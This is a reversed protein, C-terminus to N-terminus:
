KTLSFVVNVQTEVEVPEGHLLFPRYRWTRVAKMASETLLEDPSAVMRLDTPAGERDIVVALTVTGRIRKEKATEPYVPNEGAIKNRSIVGPLVHVRKVSQATPAGPPLAARLAVASSYTPLVVALSAAAVLIRRVAGRSTLTQTLSM